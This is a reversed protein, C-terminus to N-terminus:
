DERLPRSLSPQADIQLSSSQSPKQGGEFFAFRQPQSHSQSKYDSQIMTLITWRGKVFSIKHEKNGLPRFAVSLNQGHEVRYKGPPVYMAGKTNQADPSVRGISTNGSDWIPHAQVTQKRTRSNPNAKIWIETGSPIQGIEPPVGFAHVTAWMEADTKRQLDIHQSHSPKADLTM